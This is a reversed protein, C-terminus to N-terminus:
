LVTPRSAILCMRAVNLCLFLVARRRERHKGSYGVTGEDSSGRLEASPATIQHIVAASARFLRRRRDASPSEPRHSVALVRAALRRALRRPPLLRLRAPPRPVPVIGLTVPDLLLRRPSLRRVDIVLYRGPQAAAAAVRRSAGIWRIAAANARCRNLERCAPLRMGGPPRARPRDAARHV